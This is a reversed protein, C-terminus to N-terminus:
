NTTESEALIKKRQPAIILWSVLLMVAFLPVGTVIRVVGLANVYHLVYLPIEAALRIGFGAVWVWTAYTYPVRLKDFTDEKTFQELLWGIGPKRVLLSILLALIAVLNIIIGPTYFDRASNRLVAFVVSIATVLVGSFAGTLTQKQIIRAVIIILLIASVLGLSVLLNASVTYTVIFILFPLVAEAIGRWGGVADLLSFEETSQAISQLGSNHREAM